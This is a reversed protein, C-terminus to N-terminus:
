NMPKKSIQQAVDILNSNPQKLVAVLPIDKGDAKIKIYETKASVVVVAIDAIKIERNADNSLVLNELQEKNKSPPM